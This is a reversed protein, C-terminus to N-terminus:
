PRTSVGTKMGTPVCPTTFAVVCSFLTLVLVWLLLSGANGAWFSTVSYNVPSDNSTYLAVFRLSYDKTVLAYILSAAAAVILAFCVYVTRRASALIDARRTFGAVIGAGVGYVALLFAVLIAARGIDVIM